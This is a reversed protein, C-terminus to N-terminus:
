VEEMRDHADVRKHPSGFSMLWHGPGDEAAGVAHPVSAEIMYLDGPRVENVRDAFTITGSGGVCLLLHHGPHVHYPFSKGPPVYLLDVGLTGNTFVPVGRAETGHVDCTNADHPVSLALDPLNVITLDDGVNIPLYEPPGDTYWRTRGSGHIFGADPPPVVTEEVVGEVETDDMSPVTAGNEYTQWPGDGVRYLVASRGDTLEVEIYDRVVPADTWWRDEM